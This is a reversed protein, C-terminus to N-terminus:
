RMGSAVAQSGYGPGGSVAVWRGGERSSRRGADLVRQQALGDELTAAPSLAQRDGDDLATRLAHGLAVTASGFAGGTTNGPLQQLDRSVSADRVFPAGRRAMLLEEGTLRLAGTEGHVTLTAPEDLAAVAAFALVALAGGALRLHVAAFDDSTVPSIGNPAPREGIITNLTAQVQEIEGALYRLADVFHSGVAGWVGGGQAADSWWNWPRGRDGRGLSCYRMEAYRIGGLEGIRARATRWSPLFRLEHDVIAIQQPRRRAAEAIEEAQGADLATPKECILHKGAELVAIAMERHAAPPTVVSVLDLDSGALERWDSFARLGLEAAIRRTKEPDHGALAVVELGASRFAPVQDRAGWGTGIIGVRAM